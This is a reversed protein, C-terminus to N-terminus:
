TVLVDCRSPPLGTTPSKFCLVGWDHRQTTEFFGVAKVIETFLYLDAIRSGNSCVFISKDVKLTWATSYETLGKDALGVTDISPDDLATGMEVPDVPQAAAPDCGALPGTPAGVPVKTETGPPNVPVDQSTCTVPGFDLNTTCLTSAVTIRPLSPFGAFGGPTALEILTEVDRLQRRSGECAYVEKEMAVGRKHDVGLHDVFAVTNLELPEGPQPDTLQCTLPLVVASAGGGGAVLWVAFAAATLVLAATLPRVLKRGM